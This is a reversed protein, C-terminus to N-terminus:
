RVLSCSGDKKEDQLMRDGLKKFAGRAHEHLTSRSDSSVRNIELYDVRVDQFQKTLYDEM